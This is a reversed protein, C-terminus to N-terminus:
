YQLNGRPYRYTVHNNVMQLQLKVASCLKACTANTVLVSHHLLALDQKITKLERQLSRLGQLADRLDQMCTAEAMELNDASLQHM